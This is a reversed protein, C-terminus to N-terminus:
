LWGLARGLRAYALDVLDENPHYQIEEGEPTQEYDNLNNRKIVEVPDEEEIGFTDAWEDMLAKEEIASLPTTKGKSRLHKPLQDSPYALAESLADALGTMLARAEPSTLNAIRERTTSM